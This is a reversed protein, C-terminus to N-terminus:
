KSWFGANSFSSNVIKSSNIGIVQGYMNVLAGGSNGPNIAADTQIYSMGSSSNTGVKRDVASVTGRTLSSAFDTGGPNGIALVWDGVSLSDSDGFTAPTFKDKTNIIKLVALDTTKDYGIVVASYSSSDDMYIKLDVNRSNLVVHANSIIYGDETAVIGSGQTENEKGENVVVGVISKKISPYIVKATLEATNQPVPNLKIGETNPVITVNSKPSSETGNNSSETQSAGDSQTQSSFRDIIPLKGGSKIISYGTYVTFVILL